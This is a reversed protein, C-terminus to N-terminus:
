GGTKAFPLSITFPTPGVGTSWICLGYPLITGDQADMRPLNLPGSPPPRDHSCESPLSVSAEEPRPARGPRLPLAVRRGPICGAPQTRAAPQWRRSSEGLACM